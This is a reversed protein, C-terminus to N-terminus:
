GPQNVNRPKDTSPLVVITFWYDTIGQIVRTLQEFNVPKVIYSSCRLAYMKLIEREDASTTLVVVPIHCLSTDGKLEELVEQGTMRPMNLDLLILDPTPAGAYQSQKRLFTMCEEGDKVRHLDVVLRSKKFGLRMLEVDNDNDEVLLIVAPRSRYLESSM